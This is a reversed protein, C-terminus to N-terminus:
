RLPRGLPIAGVGLGALLEDRRADVSWVDALEAAELAAAYRLDSAPGAETVLAAAADELEREIARVDAISAEVLQGLSADQDAQVEQWLMGTRHPRAVTGADPREVGAIIRLLTSKGAGNEGILGLRETRGAVLSIGSFVTRDGYRRAVSEVRIHDLVPAAHIGSSPLLPSSQM